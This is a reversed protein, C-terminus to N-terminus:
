KTAKDIQASLPGSSIYGAPPTVLGISRITYTHKRELDTFSGDISCVMADEESSSDMDIFKGNDADYISVTCYLWPCPITSLLGVTYEIESKTSSVKLSLNTIGAIDKDRPEAVESSEETYIFGSTSVTTEADDMAVVNAEGDDFLLVSDYQKQIEPPLVEFGEPDFYRYLDGWTSDYDPTFGTDTQSDSAFACVSMSAAIAVASILSVVKRFCRKM